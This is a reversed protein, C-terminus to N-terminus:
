PCCCRSSCEGLACARTPFQELPVAEGRQCSPSRCLSGPTSVEVEPFYSIGLMNVADQNSPELFVQWFAM